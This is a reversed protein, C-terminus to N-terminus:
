VLSKESTVPARAVIMVAHLLLLCSVTTLLCYNNSCDRLSKIVIAWHKLVPSLTGFMSTLGTPVASVKM